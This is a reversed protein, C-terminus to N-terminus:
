LAASGPDGRRRAAVTKLISAVTTLAAFLAARGISLDLELVMTAFGEAGIAGIAAEIATWMVREAADRSWRHRDVQGNEM